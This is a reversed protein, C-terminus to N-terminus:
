TRGANLNLTSAYQIMRAVASGTGAVTGSGSGCQWVAVPCMGVAAASTQDCGPIVRGPWYAILSNSYRGDHSGNRNALAIQM